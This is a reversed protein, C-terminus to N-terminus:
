TACMCSGRQPIAASGCDRQGCWKRVPATPQPDQTSTNTCRRRKRAPGKPQEASGIIASAAPFCAQSPCAIAPPIARPNRGCTGWRDELCFLRCNFSSGSAFPRPWVLWPIPLCLLFHCIVLPFMTIESFGPWQFPLWTCGLLRKVAPFPSPTDLPLAIRDM